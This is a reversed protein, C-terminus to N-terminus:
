DKINQLVRGEFVPGLPNLILHSLQDRLPLPIGLPCWTEIIRKWFQVIQDIRQNPSSIDFDPNMIFRILEIWDSESLAYPDSSPLAERLNTALLKLQVDRINKDPECPRWCCIHGLREFGKLIDVFDDEKLNISSEIEIKVRDNINDNPYLLISFGEVQGRLSQFELFQRIRIRFQEVITRSVGCADHLQIQKGFGKPYINFAFAPM